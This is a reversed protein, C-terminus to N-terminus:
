PAVAAYSTGVKAEDYYLTLWEWYGKSRYLTPLWGGCGSANQNITNMYQKTSGNSMRVPQGNVWLEVFGVSTSKSFKVHAVVDQWHGRQTPFSAVDRWGGNQNYNVLAISSGRAEFHLPPYGWPAGFGIQGINIWSGSPMSEPFNSPLYWSWGLYLDDGECFKDLDGLQARPNTTGALADSDHVRFKASHTGKRVVTSDTTLRDTAARQAVDWPPVFTDDDRDFSDSFLVEGTTPPSPTPAPTGESTVTVKDVWLEDYCTPGSYYQVAIRHSGAPIDVAVSQDAWTYNNSLNKDLLVTGDVRVRMRINGACEIYTATRVTINTIRGAYTRTDSISVASPPDAFYDAIGGSRYADYNTTTRVYNSSPTMREAEIITTTAAFATPSFTFLAAMVALLCVALKGLRMVRQRMRNTDYAVEAHSLNANTM